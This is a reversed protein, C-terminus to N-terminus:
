PGVTYIAFGDLEVAVSLDLVFAEALGLTLPFFGGPADFSLGGVGAFRYAGSLATAGSRLTVLMFPAANRSLFNFHFLRIRNGAAPAPIVTNVGLLGASIVAQLAGAAPGPPAPAAGSSVALRGNLPDLPLFNATRAAIVADARAVGMTLQGSPVLPAAKPPVLELEFGRFVQGDPAWGATGM